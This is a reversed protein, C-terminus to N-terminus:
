VKIFIRRRYLAYAFIWCVAVFALSYLLSAFAADPVAHLISHYLTEQLNM